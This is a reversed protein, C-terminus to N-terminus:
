NECQFEATIPFHDSSNINGHIQSEMTQCGRIFLHDLVLNRPDNEYKVHTMGLSRMKNLLYSMRSSNWTNFDGGVLAKGKWKEVVNSIADIQRQFPATGTFNIAHTNVVLIEDGSELVYTSLLSMKPTNVLPETDQTRLFSLARPQQLSGTIVGTGARDTEMFFTRAIIWGFNQLSKLVDPVFNDELGEQILVLSKDFALDQFDLAWDHQAKGKEINWNLIKLANPLPSNGAKAIEGLVLHDPAVVYDAKAHLTTLSFVLLVSLSLSKFM